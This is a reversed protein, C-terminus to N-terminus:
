NDKQGPITKKVPHLKQHIKEFTLHISKMTGNPSPRLAPAQVFIGEPDILYYQPLTQANYRQRISPDAGDHLFTWAYNNKKLFAKMKSVDEGVCVSVFEIDWKYTDYLSKMIKLENISATNDTQWFMLYVFKGRFQSLNIISDKLNKLAFPPAASGVTLYLLRKKINAAITQHEKHKSFNSISDLMNLIMQKDFDMNYYEQNLSKLLAMEAIKDERLLIDKQLIAKTRKPSGYYNVARFLDIEESLPIMKFIDSYFKTFFNMYKDNEYRVPKNFIYDAYIRKIFANEDKRAMGLMETEAVSYAVFDSFYPHQVNKYVKSLYIKFTDLRSEFVPKGFVTFNYFLFDDHRSNFDLILNNIDYTPLTDFDIRISQRYANKQSSDPKNVIIFYNGFPDAYMLGQAGGIHLQVQTTHMLPVTLSFAGNKDITTRGLENIEFSMYDLYRTCVLEKGEYGKAKGSITVQAQVKGWLLFLLM